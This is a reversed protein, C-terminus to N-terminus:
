RGECLPAIVMSARVTVSVRMKSGPCGLCLMEPGGSGKVGGFAVESALRVLASTLGRRGLRPAM